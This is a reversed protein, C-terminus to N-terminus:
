ADKKMSACKVKSKWKWLLGCLWSVDAVHDDFPGTVLVLEDEVVKQGVTADLDAVIDEISHDLGPTHILVGMEEGVRDSMVIRAAEKPGGGVLFANVSCKPLIRLFLLFRMAPVPVTGEVGLVATAFFALVGALLAVVVLRLFAM